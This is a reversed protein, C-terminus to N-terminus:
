RFQFSKLTAENQSLFYGTSKLIQNIALKQNPLRPILLPFLSLTKLTVEIETRRYSDKFQDSIVTESYPLENFRGNFKLLAELGELEFFKNILADQLSSDRYNKIKIYYPSHDFDTKNQMAENCIFFGGFCKTLIDLIEYGCYRM